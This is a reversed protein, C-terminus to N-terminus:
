KKPFIVRSYPSEKLIPTSPVKPPWSGLNIRPFVNSLVFAKPTRQPRLMNSMNTPRNAHSIDIPKFKLERPNAGTFFMSAPQQALAPALVYGSFVVVLIALTKRM